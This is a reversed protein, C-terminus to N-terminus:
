TDMTKELLVIHHEYFMQSTDLAVCMLLEVRAISLSLSHQAQADMWQMRVLEVAATEAM